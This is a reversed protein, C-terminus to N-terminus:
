PERGAKGIVTAGVLAVLLILSAAEFPVTAGFYIMRGLNEVSGYGSVAVDTPKEARLSLAIPTLALLLATAAGVVGVTMWTPSPEEVLTDIEVFVIIFVYLVM